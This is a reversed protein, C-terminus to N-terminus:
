FYFGFYSRQGIRFLYNTTTHSFPFIFYNTYWFVTFYSILLESRHHAFIRLIESRISKINTELFLRHTCLINIHHPWATVLGPYYYNSIIILTIYRDHSENKLRLIKSNCYYNVIVPM